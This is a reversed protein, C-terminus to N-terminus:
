SDGGSYGDADPPWLTPPVSKEAVKQQHITYKQPVGDCYFEKVHLYSAVKEELYQLFSLITSFPM